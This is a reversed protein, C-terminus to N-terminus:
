NAQFTIYQIAQYYVNKGNQYAPTWEPMENLVRLAEIDATLQLSQLIHLDEIKGNKNIIFQMKVSGTKVIDTPAVLTKLLYKKYGERGGKFVAEKEAAKTTIEPLETGDKERKEDEFSKQGSPTIITKLVYDRREVERGKEYRVTLYLGLTDNYYAWSGDKKRNNVYGSSDIRGEDDYWAFAGHAVTQEADRFSEQRWLHGRGKFIRNVFLSDGINSAQVIYDAADVDKAPKWDKTYLYYEAKQKQGMAATTFVLLLLLVCRLRATLISNLQNFREPRMNKPIFDRFRRFGPKLIVM